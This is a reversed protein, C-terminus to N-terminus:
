QFHQELLTEGGTVGSKPKTKNPHMYLFKLREELQVVHRKKEKCLKELCIKAAVPCDARLTQHTTIYVHINYADPFPM